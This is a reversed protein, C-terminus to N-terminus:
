GEIFIGEVIEGLEADLQKEKELFTNAADELEVGGIDEKNVSKAFARWKDQMNTLKGLLQSHKAIETDSPSSRVKASIFETAIGAIKSERMAQASADSPLHYSNIGIKQMYDYKQIAKFVFLKEYAKKDADLM